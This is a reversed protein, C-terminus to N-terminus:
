SIGIYVSHVCIRIQSCTWRSLILHAYCGPWLMRTVGRKNNCCRRIIPIYTHTIYMASAVTLCHGIYNDSFWDRIDDPNRSVSRRCVSRPARVYLDTTPPTGILANSVRRVFRNRTYLPTRLTVAHSALTNRLRTQLRRPTSPESGNPCRVATPVGISRDVTLNIRGRVPLQRPSSVNLCIGANTERNVM